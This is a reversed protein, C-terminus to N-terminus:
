RRQNSKTRIIMALWIMFRRRNPRFSSGNIPFLRVRGREVPHDLQADFHSKVLGRVIWDLSEVIGADPRVRGAQGFGTREPRRARHLLLHSSVSSRRPKAPTNKGFRKGTRERIMEKMEELSKVRGM